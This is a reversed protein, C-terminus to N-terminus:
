NSDGNSLPSDNGNDEAKEELSLAVYRLNGQSNVLLLVKKKDEKKLTEMFKQLDEPKTPIIKMTGSTLQQIIDGPRLFKEYAESSSSVFTVFIGSVDEPLKYRERVGATLERTVLGLVQETKEVKEELEPDLNILGEKEAQEFEGVKVKLDVKKGNRWVIVPVDKGIESEGVIHPLDKSEKVEQGNFTLIV